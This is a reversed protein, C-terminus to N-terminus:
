PAERLTARLDAVIEAAEAPPLPGCIAALRSIDLRVVPLVTAPAPRPTWPRGAAALLAEMRVAGDLAVNLLGPLSEGARVRALLCALLDALAGPGLYSRRPGTGDAFVDLVQPDGRLPAGLLADAGAVNAIRLCTVGPGAPRAAVWTSAAEEMALKGRGYDSVPSPEDEERAGDSGGYVAASSALFVHPVGAEAAARLAAVGLAAHNALEGADGGVRGALSLIATTGRAAAAYSRPETLPDFVPGGAGPRRGQWVLGGQGARAWALRLLAGLRGTGGVVLVTGIGFAGMGVIRLRGPLRAAGAAPSLVGRGPLSGAFTGAAARPNDGGAINVMM